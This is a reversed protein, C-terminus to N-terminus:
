VKSVQGLVSEKITFWQEDTIKSEDANVKAVEALWIDNLADDTVDDRKLNYCTTYAEDATCKGVVAKPAKPATPKTAKPKTAKPTKPKTATKPTSVASVAKPAAKTSALVSAYRAQLAAVDAADINILRNGSPSAGIPDIWSVQLTTVEKYTNPEVRFQIPIDVMNMQSLEVFSAGDWETVKKLQECNKTEKDKSSILVGYWTIENAEPDAPLWEDSDPDYVEDARLALVEQPFGNTSQSLGSDTIVGRYYGKQNILEMNTKREYQKQKLKLKLFDKQKKKGINQGGNSM